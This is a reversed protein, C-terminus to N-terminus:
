TWLWLQIIRFLIFYSHFLIRLFARFGVKTLLDFMNETGEYGPSFQPSRKPSNLLLDTFVRSALSYICPFLIIIKRRLLSFSSIYSARPYVKIEKMFSYIRIVKLCGVMKRVDNEHKMASHFCAQQGILVCTSDM